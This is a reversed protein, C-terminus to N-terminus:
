AIIGSKEEHRWQITFVKFKSEARIYCENMLWNHILVFSIKNQLSDKERSGIRFLDFKADTREEKDYFYSRMNKFFLTSSNNTSFSVEKLDIKKGQPGFLSFLVIFVFLTGIFFVFFRHLQNKM